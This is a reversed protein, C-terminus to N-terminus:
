AISGADQIWWQCVLEATDIAKAESGNIAVFLGTDQGAPDLLPIIGDIFIAHFHWPRQPALATPTTHADKAM